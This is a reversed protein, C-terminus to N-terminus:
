RKGLILEVVHEKDDHVLPIRAGTGDLSATIGDVAASIVRTADAKPNLAHIVYTTAEGPLRLEVTFEPWDDPVCPDLLLETGERLRV